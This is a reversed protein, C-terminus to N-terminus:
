GLTKGHRHLIRTPRLLASRHCHLCNKLYASDQPGTDYFSSVVLEKAFQKHGYLSERWGPITKPM